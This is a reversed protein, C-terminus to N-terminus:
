VRLTLVLTLIWSGLLSCFSCLLLTRVYQSSKSRADGPTALLDISLAWAPSFTGVIFLCLAIIFVPRYQLLCYLCNHDPLNMLRPGIAEKLAIYSVGANILAAITFVTLLLRHRNADGKWWVRALAYGIFGILSVNVVHYAISLLRHYQGALIPLPILPVSPMEIDAIATCCSVPLGPPSFSIIFFLETIAEVGAVTCVFLLAILSRTILHHTKLSLEFRHFILWGGILFFTIPKVIELFGTLSPMVQTTGFICMAGPVLPILSQLMIYFLPWSIVRLLLATFALIFSLYVRTEAFAKEDPADSGKWQRFYCLASIAITLIIILSLSDTLLAILTFPNIIM